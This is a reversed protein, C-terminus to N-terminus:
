YSLRIGARGVYGADAFKDVGKQVIRLDTFLGVNGNLRFEIGAGGYARWTINHDQYRTGAGAIVYPAVHGIPFRVFLNVGVHNAFDESKSIINRTELGLGVNRSFFYNFGIGFGADHDKIADATLESVTASGYIDMSFESARYLESAPKFLNGAARADEVQQKTWVEGAGDKAPPELPIPAANCLSVAAFAALLIAIKARM